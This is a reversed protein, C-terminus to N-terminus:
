DNAAREMRLKYILPYALLLVGIFLFPLYGNLILMLVFLYTEVVIFILVSILTSVRLDRPAMALFFLFSLLAIVASGILFVSLSM